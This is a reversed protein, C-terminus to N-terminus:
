NGIKLNETNSNSNYNSKSGYESEILTQVDLMILGVTEIDEAEAYVRIVDETGSPRVFCRANKEKYKNTIKDIYEQIHAPKELRTENRNCVFEAKDKVVLKSYDFKLPKYLDSFDKISYNLLKLSSEVALMLTIGDGVTPNFISLFATLLELNLIDLSSNSYSSLKSFKDNLNPKVSIKGHGNAEFEFSIDYNSGANRLNKVGTKETIIDVKFEKNLVEDNQIKSM